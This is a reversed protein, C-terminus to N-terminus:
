PKECEAVFAEIAAQAYRDPKFDGALVAKCYKNLMSRREDDEGVWELLLKSRREANKVRNGRAHVLGYMIRGLQEEPALKFVPSAKMRKDAERQREARLEKRVQALDPKPKGLAKAVSAMISQLDNNNPAQFVLNDVVQDGKAVVVTMAVNRNLGYSGPGEHGDTSVGVSSKTFLSGRMWGKLMKMTKARDDTLLVVHSTLAQHRRLYYDVLGFGYLIRDDNSLKHVFCILTIDNAHTKAIELETAEDNQYRLVKFPQISEGPQPGSFVRREQIREIASETASPTTDIEQAALSATMVMLAWGTSVAIRQSTVMPIPLGAFGWGCTVDGCTTQLSRKM